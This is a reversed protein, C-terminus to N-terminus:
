LGLGQFWWGDDPDSVLYQLANYGPFIKKYSSQADGKEPKRLPCTLVKFCGPGEWTHQSRAKFPTETVATSLDMETNSFM